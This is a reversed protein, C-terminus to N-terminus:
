PRYILLGEDFDYFTCNICTSRDILDYNEKGEIVIYPEQEPDIVPNDVEKNYMILFWNHTRDINIMFYNLERPNFDVLSAYSYIIEYFDNECLYTFLKNETTETVPVKRFWAALWARRNIFGYQTNNQLDRAGMDYIEKLMKLESPTFEPEEYKILEYNYRYVYFLNSPTTTNIDWDELDIMKQETNFITLIIILLSFLCYTIIITKYKDYMEMIFNSTIIFTILWLLYYNKSLYYGVAKDTIIFYIIIGMFILLMLLMLHELKIDKKKYFYIYSLIIIPILLTFNSYINNYFYGDLNIQTSISTNSDGLNPVIYYLFGFLCALGFISVMKLIYNLKFISKGLKIDKYTIYIFMAIFVVPAYFYYTFFLGFCSLCLLIISIKRNFENDEYYKLLIYILGIITIAHGSYFFGFLMNNLPYGTFYLIALFISLIYKGKSKTNSIIIYFVMGAVFLMFLDYIIYFIYFDFDNVFPGVVKFMLGVNTYSATQRTEFNVVTKDAVKNLLYSQEYFDRSTWFHIGPDCTEYAINFPIGFRAIMIIVTIIALIITALCDHKSVFYEQKEKRKFLFLGILTNCVTVSILYVPIYLSSLILAIFSNYCFLLMFTIFLWHILNLKKDSKKLKLFSVFLFINSLVYVISELVGLM